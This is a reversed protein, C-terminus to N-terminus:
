LNDLALNLKLVNVRPVGMFGFQRGETYKKVLSRVEAEPIHRERAIRPVQVLASRLTIDPDLGSGSAMVLDSPVPKKIGAALLLSIRGKVQNILERNTPGLNSGGSTMPNYPFDSTASPRSWFYGASSFPQGILASGVPTGDAKYIISGASQKPFITQALITVAAPYIVGTLLTLVAFLLIGTKIEKM